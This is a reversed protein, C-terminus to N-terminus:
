QRGDNIGRSGLYGTVRPPRATEVVKRGFLSVFVAACLLFQFPELPLGFRAATVTLTYTLVATGSLLVVHGMRWGRRWAIVGGVLTGVLLLARTIPYLYFAKYGQPHDWDWWVTKALRKGSVAAYSGPNDSIWTKAWTGFLEEREAAPKGDLAVRQEPTLLDYQRLDDRGTARFEALRDATLTPRDTGSNGPDTANNGKWVNVWFTSKIPMFVDHVRYNRWTWPGIVAFAIVLLVAANRLRVPVPLRKTFIIWLGSLAMPPLLVPETLAAVCGILGYAIWPLLRGTALSELWLWSVAVFGFTIAVIAQAQTVAFVQTPWMAFLGAAVVGVVHGYRGDPAIRRALLYLVPVTAAAFLANVIWATIFAGPAAIGFLKYLGALFLPYPPSQVSSPEYLGRETYGASENFSFGQGTILGSALSSHEMAGPSAPDAVLLIAALRVLLASLAIMLIISPVISAQRAKPEASADNAFPGATVATM